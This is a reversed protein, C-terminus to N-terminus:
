SSNTIKLIFYYYDVHFINYNNFNYYKKRHIRTLCLEFIKTSSKYFKHM